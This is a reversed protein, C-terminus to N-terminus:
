GGDRRGQFLLYLAVAVLAWAVTATVLVLAAPLRTALAWVCVAFVIMGAAGLVAGRADQEVPLRRHEEHEILTLTAALTAPFALFVGGTVPGWRDTVLAAVVSIAAGFAFRLAMGAPHACRAGSPRLRIRERGSM